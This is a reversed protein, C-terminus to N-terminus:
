DNTIEARYWRFICSVIEYEQYLIETFSSIVNSEQIIGTYYRNLSYELPLGYIVRVFTFSMQTLNFDISAFM